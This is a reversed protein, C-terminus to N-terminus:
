QRENKKYFIQNQFFNTTYKCQGPPMGPRCSVPHIDFQYVGQQPKYPRYLKM